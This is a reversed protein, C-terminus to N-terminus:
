GLGRHMAPSPPSHPVQVTSQPPTVQALVAHRRQQAQYSTAHKLSVRRLAQAVRVAGPCVYPHRRHPHAAWLCPACCPLYLVGAIQDDQTIEVTVQHDRYQFGFGEMYTGNHDWMVGLKLKTSVQMCGHQTLM